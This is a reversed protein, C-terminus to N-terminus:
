QNNSNGYHIETTTYEGILSMRTGFGSRANRGQEVGKAGRCQRLLKLEEERSNKDDNLKMWLIYRIKQKVRNSSELVVRKKVEM